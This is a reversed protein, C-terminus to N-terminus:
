GPMVTAVEHRQEDVESRPAGSTPGAYSIGGSDFVTGQTIPEGRGPILVDAIVRTPM